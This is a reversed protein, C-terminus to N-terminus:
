FSIQYIKQGNLLYITKGNESVAFDKLNDFKESKFQKIIQGTESIIIIRNEEPELIFIRHPLAFSAFIKKFSKPYPFINLELAGQYIGGYYRHIGNKGDLVWVSGDVAISKGDVVRKTKSDLYPKGELSEGFPYKIIEGSKADLFYLNNKFFALDVFDTEPSPLTLSFPKQELPTVINPKTFLIINDSATALNFKQETPILTGEGKENIRFLNESLPSFLYLEKGLKVMKQPIFKKPDIESFVQPEQIIELKNLTYLNKEIDGKLKLADEKIPSGEKTLPLIEEFAEKLLEDAKKDDKPILLKASDVKEQIKALTVESEKLQRQNKGRFVLFGFALLLILALVSIVKKKFEKNSMLSDYSPIKPLGVSKLSNIKKIFSSFPNKIAIERKEKVPVHFVREKKKQPKLYPLKKFIRTLSKIKEIFPKFVETISFVPVEKEFIFAKKSLLEPKLIILLCIGSIQLLIKEKQKLAKKLNRGYSKDEVPIKAIENLLQSEISFAQFAEETLIMLQDDEAMKGTAVNSFIKLPYPEIDQFKLREGIDTIQGKRILFIKVNGVKTFNIEFNKVSIVALNLNGLWSTNDSKVEEALFDNAAKLSEEFSKEFSNIPFSYFKTRIVQVIKNILKENQPLTNKLEGVIYLSGLRKEYINEPEYCFSDLALDEEVKKKFHLEFVEM